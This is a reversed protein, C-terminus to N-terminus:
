SADRLLGDLLALDGPETLKPNPRRATVAAISVGDLLEMLSSEDTPDLESRDALEIARAFLRRTFVQPTEARFLHSRDVTSRVLGRGTEKITDSVPRGLVAAGGLAASEVVRRLDEEALAPRAADHIAVLDTAAGTTQEFARRVSRWRSDGGTICRVSEWGRFHEEMSSVLERPLAVVVVSSVTLLREVSWELIPRGAVVMMQKPTEGGFRRGEGGAAVIAQVDPM